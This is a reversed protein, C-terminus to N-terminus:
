LTGAPRRRCQRRRGQRCRERCGAEPRDFRRDPRPECLHYSLRRWSRCDGAEGHGRMYGTYLVEGVAVCKVSRGPSAEIDIGNNTIVTKYVPHVVKGFRGVVKGDIPWPLDGKLKEFAMAPLGPQPRGKQAVLKRKQELARIVEDLKKRASELEAIKAMYANEKSRIEKVIARRETVERLLENNEGTKEVLLAALEARSTEMVGKQLNFLRQERDIKEALARDYAHVAELYRARQIAEAPSRAMFFIMLSSERPAMYARRLRQGMLRKREALRVGAQELSDKLPEIATGASDIRRTLLLLYRRSAVINTELYELRDLSSGEAKELERIKRQRFDIEARISDLADSKKKIEKEYLSPIREVRGANDAALALSIFTLAVIGSLPSRRFHKWDM